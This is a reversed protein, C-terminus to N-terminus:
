IRRSTAFGSSVLDDHRDLVRELELQRSKLMSERRADVRQGLPSSPMAQHISDTSDVAFAVAAEASHM